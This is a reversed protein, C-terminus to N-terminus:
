IKIAVASKSMLIENQIEEIKKNYMNERKSSSKQCTHKESPTLRLLLEVYEHMVSQTEECWKNKLTGQRTLDVLKSKIDGPAFVSGTLLYPNGKKSHTRRMGLNNFADHMMKFFKNLGEIPNLNGLSVQCLIELSKKRCLMANELEDDLKNVFTPLEVTANLTELFHTGNLRNKLIELHSDSYRRQHQNKKPQRKNDSLSPFFSSHCAQTINKKNQNNRGIGHQFDTHGQTPSIGSRYYAILTYFFLDVRRAAHELIHTKSAELMATQNEGWSELEDNSLPLALAATLNRQYDTRVRNKKPDLKYEQNVGNEQNVVTKSEQHVGKKSEQKIINEVRSFSSSRSLPKSAKLSKHAIPEQKRETHILKYNRKIDFIKLFLPM